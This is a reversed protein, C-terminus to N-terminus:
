KRKKKKKRRKEEKKKRLFFLSVNLPLPFFCSSSSSTRKKDNDRCQQDTKTSNKSVVNTSFWKVISAHNSQLFLHSKAPTLEGLPSQRLSACVVCYITFFSSSLLVFFLFCHRGTNSQDSRRACMVNM